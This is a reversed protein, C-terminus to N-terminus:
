QVVFSTLQKKKWQAAMELLKAQSKVADMSGCLVIPDLNGQVAKVGMKDWTEILPSRWDLAIVDGGAEAM